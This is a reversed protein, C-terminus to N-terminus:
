SQLMAALEAKQEATLHTAYKQLDSAAKKAKTVPDATRTKRSDLLERISVKFAPQEGKALSEIYENSWVTEGTDKDKATNPRIENNYWMKRYTTQSVLQLLRERETVGGFDFEVEFTYRKDFSKGNQMM